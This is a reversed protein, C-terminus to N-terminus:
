RSRAYRSILPIWWRDGTEEVSGFTHGTISAVTSFAGREEVVSRARELVPEGDVFVENIHSGMDCWVLRVPDIPQDYEVRDELISDPFWLRHGGTSALEIVQQEIQDNVDQIGNLRALASVLRIIPFLSQEDSADSEDTGLCVNVGAKLMEGVPAVGGHLKMNSFPNHSVSAGRQGLLAADEDSIQVCHAVLTRSTLLGYEDLRQIGSMGWQALSVERQVPSEEAHVESPVDLEQLTESAAKLLEDSCWVPNGLALGMQVRHGKWGKILEGVKELSERFSTKQVVPRFDEPIESTPISKTYDPYLEETYALTPLDDINPFVWARMGLAEYAEAVGYVYEPTLDCYIHDIVAVNGAELNELGTVLACAVQEAPTLRAGREVIARALWLEFPESPAVGKFPTSFSHIHGNVFGPFSTDPM